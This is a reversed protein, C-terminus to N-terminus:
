WSGPEPVGQRQLGVRRERQRARRAPGIGDAVHEAGNATRPRHCDAPRRPDPAPFVRHLIGATDLRRCAADRHIGQTAAVRQSDGPPRRSGDQGPEQRRQRVTQLMQAVPALCVMVHDAKDADLDDWTVSWVHYKGSDVIARRKRMDDALRNVPHCHFQFGDTFIAVPKIRDDDVASCSILSLSCRSGRRRVWRPSFSWSGCAAGSRAALLSVGPQRSHDDAGM